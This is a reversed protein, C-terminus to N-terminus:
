QMVEEAAAMLKTTPNKRCYEGMKGTDSKLKDFDVIPPEDEDTFFGTLWMVILTISREDSDLFQKCIVTSLDLRQASAPAAAVLSSAVLIASVIKM